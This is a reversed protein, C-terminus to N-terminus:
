RLLDTLEVIIVPDEKQIYQKVTIGSQHLEDLQRALGQPDRFSGSFQFSVKPTLRDTFITLNLVNNGGLDCAKEIASFVGNLMMYLPEDINSWDAHPGDIKVKLQFPKPAWNYGILFLATKPVNLNSLKAENKAKETLSDLIGEFRDLRKLSANAKLLQIHNLFDHRVARLMEIVQKEDYAL